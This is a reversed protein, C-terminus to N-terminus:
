VHRPALEAAQKRDRGATAGLLDLAWLGVFACANILFIRSVTAFTFDDADRGIALCIAFISGEYVLFAAAFTAGSRAVGKLRRASLGATECSLLAIAGLAGGWTLTMADTPYHLFTFGVAQNAFWAAGTLVLAERRGATLAAITAFAALPWACAYSDDRGIAALPRRLAFQREGEFHACPKKYIRCDLTTVM